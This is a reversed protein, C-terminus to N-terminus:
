QLYHKEWNPRAMKIKKTLREKYKTRKYSTYTKQSGFLAYAEFIFNSITYAKFAHKMQAPM